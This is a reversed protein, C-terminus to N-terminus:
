EIASKLPIMKVFRSQYAPCLNNNFKALVVAHPFLPVELPSILCMEKYTPFTRCQFSNQEFTLLYGMGVELILRRERPSCRNKDGNRGNYSGRRSETPEKNHPCISAAPRVTQQLSPSAECKSVLEM